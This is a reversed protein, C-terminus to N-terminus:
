AIRVLTGAVILETMGSQTTGGTITTREAAETSAHGHVVDEGHETVDKASVTSTEATKSTEASATSCLLLATVTTRVQTDLHFQVELFDRGAHFLFEFQLFVHRTGVTMTRSGFTVAASFCARGTVAAARYDTVLLGYEAGHLCSGGARRTATLAFDDLVLTLLTGTFANYVTFFYYGYFNRFANCFTHLERHSSFSVCALM